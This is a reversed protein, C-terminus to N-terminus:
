PCEKRVGVTCGVIGGPYTPQTLVPDVPAPVNLPRVKIAYGAGALVRTGQAFLIELVFSGAPLQPCQYTARLGTAAQIPCRQAPLGGGSMRLETGPPFTIVDAALGSTSGWVLDVRPGRDSYGDVVYSAIDQVFMTGNVSEWYATPAIWSGGRSGVTGDSYTISPVVVSFPSTSSPPLPCDFRTSPLSGAGVTRNCAESAVTVSAVKDADLGIAVLQSNAADVTDRTGFWEILPPEAAPASRAPCGAAIFSEVLGGDLIASPTSAAAGTILKYGRFGALFRSIATADVPTFSGDGDVDLRGASAAVASEVSAHSLTAGTGSILAPGRLGTAYRVLALGDGPATAVSGGVVSFPCISPAANAVSIAALAAISINTLFVFRM